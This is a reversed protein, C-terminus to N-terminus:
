QSQPDPREGLTITVEQREGDRVITLMVTEGPRGETLLYRSIDETSTVSQNRMAVIIDGGTPIRTGNVIVSDTSGQLVGSAPGREPVNHVYVGNTM